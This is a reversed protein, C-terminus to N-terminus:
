QKKTRENQPFISSLYIQIYRLLCSVCVDKTCKMYMDKKFWSNSRYSGCTSGVSEITSKFFLHVYSTYSIYFFIMEWIEFICRFFGFVIIMFAYCCIMCFFFFISCVNNSYIFNALVQHISQNSEDQDEKLGSTYALNKLGRIGV